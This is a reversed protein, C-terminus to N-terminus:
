AKEQAAQKGSKRDKKTTRCHKWFMRVTAVTVIGWYVIYFAEHRVMPVAFIGGFVYMAMLVIWKFELMTDKKYIRVTRDEFNTESFVLEMGSKVSFSGQKM